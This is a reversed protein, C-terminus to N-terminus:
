GELPICPRELREASFLIHGAVFTEGPLDLAKFLPCPHLYTSYINFIHPSYMATVAIVMVSSTKLTVSGQTVLWM